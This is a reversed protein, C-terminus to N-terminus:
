ARRAEAGLLQRITRTIVEPAFAERNDLVASWPLSVQVALANIREIQDDSVPIHVSADRGHIRTLCQEPTALVRVLHVRALEGLADLYSPLLPSAGTSEICVADHHSLTEGVRAVVAEFGLRELEPHAAGLRARVELFLPEVRLFCVDLREALLKGITSKGAGKPGVLVVLQKM